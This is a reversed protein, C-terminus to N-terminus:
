RQYYIDRSQALPYRLRWPHADTKLHLCLLQSWTARCRWARWASRRTPWAMISMSSGDAHADIGTPFVVNPVVGQVEDDAEPALIPTPSRYVVKRPDALNWCCKSM